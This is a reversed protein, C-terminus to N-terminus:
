LRWKNRYRWPGMQWYCHMLNLFCSVFIWVYHLKYKICRLYGLCEYNQNTRRLVYWHWALDESLHFDV